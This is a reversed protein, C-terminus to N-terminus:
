FAFVLFILAIEGLSLIKGEESSEGAWSEREWEEGRWDVNFRVAAADLGGTSGLCGGGWELLNEMWVGRVFLYVSRGGCTSLLLLSFNKTKTM